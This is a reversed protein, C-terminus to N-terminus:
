LHARRWVQERVLKAWSWFRGQRISVDNEYILNKHFYISDGGGGDIVLRLDHDYSTVPSRREIEATLNAAAVEAQQVALHAMKPGPYNISDGAAYIRECGLVRMNDNVPIYGDADAIGARKAEQPGEFPPILMLLDYTLNDNSSTWIQQETVRNIPFDPRFEIERQDLAERLTKAIESGGLQEGISDPSVVTIKAQNRDGRERLLQDLAFATEYLPVALRAGPCSGLVVDGGRFHKVAEGFKLAAGVNLLHHAYKTFGEVSEVALRRGIAFLLYDYAMKIEQRGQPIVVQRREPDPYAVESQIFEINRETMAQRLDFFVDDLNCRGFALRVLAPYFMFESYKSILKVQHEEGLRSRLSEAATVGAFGGGLVIINAM